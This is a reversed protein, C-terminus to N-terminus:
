KFLAVGDVGYHVASMSYAVAMCVSYLWALLYFWFPTAHKAEPDKTWRAYYLAIGMITGVAIGGVFVGWLSPAPGDEDYDDNNAKKWYHVAFSAKLIWIIPLFLIMINALAKAPKGQMRRILKWALLLIAVSSAFAGGWLVRHFEKVADDDTGRIASVVM